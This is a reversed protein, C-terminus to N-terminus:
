INRKDSRGAASLCRKAAKDRPEVINGAARYLDVSFIDPVDLELAQTVM